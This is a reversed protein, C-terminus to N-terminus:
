AVAELIARHAAVDERFMRRQKGDTIASAQQELLAAASRLV